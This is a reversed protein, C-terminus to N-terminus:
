VLQGMITKLTAVDTATDVAAQIEAYKTRIVARAAEAASAELPISAKLDLPAFEISRATRRMDHTIAKAKTLDIVIGM